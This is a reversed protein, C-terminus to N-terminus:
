IIGDAQLTCFQMRIIELVYISVDVIVVSLTTINQKTTM